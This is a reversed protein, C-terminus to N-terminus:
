PGHRHSSTLVVDGIRAIFRREDVDVAIEHRAFARHDRDEISSEDQTVTHPLAQTQVLAGNQKKLGV